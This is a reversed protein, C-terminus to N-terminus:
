QFKTGSASIFLGKSPNGNSWNGIFANFQKTWCGYGPGLPYGSLQLKDKRSGSDTTHGIYSFGSENVYKTWTDPKREWWMPDVLVKERKAIFDIICDIKARLYSDSVFKSHGVAFKYCEKANDPNDYNRNERLLELDGLIAVADADMKYEENDKYAKFTGICDEVLYMAAEPSQAYGGLGNILMYAALTMESIQPHNIKTGTRSVFPMLLTAAKKYDRMKDDFLYVKALKAAYLGYTPVVNHLGTYYKVYDDTNERHAEIYAVLAASAEHNRFLAARHLNSVYASSDGKKLYCEAMRAAVFGAMNAQSVTDVKIENFQELAEDYRGSLMDKCGQEYRDENSVCATFVIGALLFLVKRM